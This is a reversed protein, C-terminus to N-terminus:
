IDQNEICFYNSVLFLEQFSIIELSMVYGCEQEFIVVFVVGKKISEFIDLLLWIFLYQNFILCIRCCNKSDNWGLDVMSVCGSLMIIM